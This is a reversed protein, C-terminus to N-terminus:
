RSRPYSGEHSVQALLTLTDSELNRLVPMSKIFLARDMLSLTRARVEM